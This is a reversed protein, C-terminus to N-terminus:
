AFIGDFHAHGAFAAHAAADAGNGAVTDADAGEAGHQVFFAVTHAPFPDEPDEGFGQAEVHEIRLFELFFTSHFFSSDNEWLM